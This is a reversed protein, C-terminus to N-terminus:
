YHVTYIAELEYTLGLLCFSTEEPLVIGNMEVPVLLPDRQRNFSLLKKKTANFIVLFSDGWEM